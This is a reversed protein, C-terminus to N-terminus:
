HIHLFSSKKDSKWIKYVTVLKKADIMQQDIKFNYWTLNYVKMHRRRFNKVFWILEQMFILTYYISKRSQKLTKICVM